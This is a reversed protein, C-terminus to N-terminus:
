PECIPIYYNTFCIAAIATGYQKNAIFSETHLSINDLTYKESLGNIYLENLSARLKNEIEIISYNGFHECVIGGFKKKTYRDHLWGYIIGATTREGKKGNAIAIIVEMVEGHSIKYPKTIKNAISPLISSYHIINASEIGASKLALHYSGTHHSIESEGTGTTVFFDQPIRNGIIIGSEKKKM